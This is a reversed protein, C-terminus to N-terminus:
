EWDELFGGVQHEFHKYLTASEDSISSYKGQEM